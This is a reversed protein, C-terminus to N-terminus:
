ADSGVRDQLRESSADQKGEGVVKKYEAEILVELLDIMSLHEIAAAVKLQQLSHQWIKTTVRHKEMYGNYLKYAQMDLLFFHASFDM